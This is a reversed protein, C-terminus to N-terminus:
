KYTLVLVKINNKYMEQINIHPNYERMINIFNNITNKWGLDLMNKWMNKLIPSFDGPYFFVIGTNEYGLKYIYGVNKGSSDKGFLIYNSIKNNGDLFIKKAYKEASKKNKDKIAVYLNKVHKSSTTVNYANYEFLINASNIIKPVCVCVISKNALPGKIAYQITDANLDYINRKVIERTTSNKKVTDTYKITNPKLYLVDKGNVNKVEFNSLNIEYPNNKPTASCGISFLCILVFCLQFKKM